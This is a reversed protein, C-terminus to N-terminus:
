KGNHCNKVCTHPTKDSSKSISNPEDVEKTDKPGCNLRKGCPQGCVAIRDECSTRVPRGRKELEKLLMGGCPCTKVTSPSLPCPKCAGAHCKDQCTHKSCSLQKGCIDGCPYCKLGSVERSCKVDRENKGCHCTQHVDLECDDCKGSHCPQNCHHQGCGLTKDCIKACHIAEAASGCEVSLNTSGCCCNRNVKATCPPCPGELFIM